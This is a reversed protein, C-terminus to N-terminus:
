NFWKLLSAVEINLASGYKVLAVWVEDILSLLPCLPFMVLGYSM